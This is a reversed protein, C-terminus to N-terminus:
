VKKAWEVSGPLVHVFDEPHCGIARLRFEDPNYRVCAKKHRCPTCWLERRETGFTKRCKKAGDRWSAERRTRDGIKQLSPPSAPNTDDRCSPAREGATPVSQKRGGSAQQRREGMKQPSQPPFRKRLEGEEPRPDLQQRIKVFADNGEVLNGSGSSGNKPRKDM